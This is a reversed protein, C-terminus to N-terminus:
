KQDEKYEEDKEVGEDNSWTTLKDPQKRKTIGNVHVKDKTEEKAELALVPLGKTQYLPIKV